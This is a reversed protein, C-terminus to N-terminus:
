NDIDNKAKKYNKSSFLSFLLFLFLYLININKNIISIILFIITIILKILSKTLKLKNEKIELKKNLIINIFIISVSINIICYFSFLKEKFILSLLALMTFIIIYLIETLTIKKM